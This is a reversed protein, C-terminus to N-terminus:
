CSTRAASAVRRRVIGLLGDVQAPDIRPKSDSQRQILADRVVMLGPFRTLAWEAAADKSCHHREEAFRWVRCATLVALGAYKPDDGIVQWDALQADAARLVWEDPVRGILEPPQPGVVSRGHARCVSLEVILDREKERRGELRVSAAPQAAIKLYTETEPLEVPAEGDARTVSRFDVRISARRSVAKMAEAWAAVQRDSLPGDVVALLDLDSVGPVYGGLTLSGHVIVGELAEALAGASAYALRNALEM